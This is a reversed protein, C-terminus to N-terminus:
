RVMNVNHNPRKSKDYERACEKCVTHYGQWRTPNKWFQKVPLYARHSSCWSMGEPTQEKIHSNGNRYNQPVNCRLHSFSINNLDFFLEKGGDRGEWPLKHEISLTDSTEIEDGCRFCVNDGFRQIYSFLIEKKLRNSATGYPMGLTENKKQNKDM